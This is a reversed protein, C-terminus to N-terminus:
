NLYIQIKKNYADLADSAQKYSTKIEELKAKEDDTFGGEAFQNWSAEFLKRLSEVQAERLGAEDLDDM